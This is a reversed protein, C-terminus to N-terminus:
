WVKDPIKFASDVWPDENDTEGVWYTPLEFGISPERQKRLNSLAREHEYARIRVHNVRGFQRFNYCLSVISNFAWVM